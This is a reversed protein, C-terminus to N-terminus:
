SQLVWTGSSWVLNLEDGPKLTKTTAGGILDASVVSASVGGTCIVKMTNIGSGVGLGTSDLTAVVAAALNLVNYKAAPVKASQLLNLTWPGFVPAAIPKNTSSM